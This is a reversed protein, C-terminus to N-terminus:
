SHKKELDGVMHQTFIGADDIRFAQDGLVVYMWACM